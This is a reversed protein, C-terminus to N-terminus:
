SAPPETSAEEEVVETVEGVDLGEADEADESEMSRAVAVLTRDDGLNMLRVGMTDRGSVRLEEVRTRIVIGDSAVAYIEDTPNCILAGVLGGREEVLKMARVGLIGRGKVNWEGVPTRKAYGGDTVTVVDAGETVVDMSLLEDDSRFRMGIVGSTARGMPRLQGDDATFRSSMGKRSVLLLDSDDNVLQASILEDGDTLNIAIIGGTRPSDFDTLKTKKVMGRRTALVLYPAVAYDRLTLVQAVTEDPGFALL